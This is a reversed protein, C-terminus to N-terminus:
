QEKFWNSIDDETGSQQDPGNSWIDFKEQNNTGPQLYNYEKEWPDEPIADMYKSWSDYSVDGGAPKTTLAKLGMDTSPYKGNDLKFQDLASSFEKIQAKAAAVKAKKINKMVNSGVIGALLSIILIVVLLEILSFARRVRKRLKM